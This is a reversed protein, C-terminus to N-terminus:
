RWTKEVGILPPSAVVVTMVTTTTAATTAINRHVPMPRCIRATTSLRRMACSSPILAGRTAAPAHASDLTRAPRAPTSSSGSVADSPGVSGSCNVASSTAPRVAAATALM